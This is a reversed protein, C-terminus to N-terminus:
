IYWKSSACRPHFHQLSHNRQFRTQYFQLGRKEAVTLNCGYVIKQHIKWSNKYVAIRTNNMDYEVEKYQDCMPNVATFFVAQREKKLSKGGPILGCQLISHLEHSNGVHYIHAIFDDPLLVNDQLTPNPKFQEFTCFM